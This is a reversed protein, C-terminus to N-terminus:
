VEGGLDCAFLFLVGSYNGKAFRCPPLNRRSRGSACSVIRNSLDWTIGQTVRKLLLPLMRVFISCISFAPALVWYSRDRPLKAM